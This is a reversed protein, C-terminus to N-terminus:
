ESKKTVPKKRAPATKPTSAVAKKVESAIQSSIMDVVPTAVAGEEVPFDDETVNTTLPDPWDKLSEEKKAPPTKDRNVSGLIIINGRKISSKLGTSWKERDGEIVFTNGKTYTNGNFVFRAARVEVELQDEM